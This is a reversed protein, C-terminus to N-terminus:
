RQKSMILSKGWWHKKGTADSLEDYIGQSISATYNNISDTLPTGAQPIINGYADTVAADVAFDAGDNIILKVTFDPLDEEDGYDEGLPNTVAESVSAPTTTPEDTDGDYNPEGNADENQYQDDAM